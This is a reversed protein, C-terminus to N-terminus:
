ARKLSMLAFNRSLLNIPDNVNMNVAKKNSSKKTASKKNPSKSRLPLFDTNQDLLFQIKKNKKSNPSKSRLTSKQLFTRRNTVHNGPPSSLAVFLPKQPSKKLFDMCDRYVEKALELLEAKKMRQERVTMVVDRYRMIYSKLESVKMEETPEPVHNNLICENSM